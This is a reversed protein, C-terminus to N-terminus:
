FGLSVAENDPQGQLWCLRAVPFRDPYTLPSSPFLFEQHRLASELVTLSGSPLIELRLLYARKSETARYLAGYHANVLRSKETRNNTASTIPRSSSGFNEERNLLM